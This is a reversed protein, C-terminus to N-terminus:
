DLDGETLDHFIDEFSNVEEQLGVLPLHAESALLFVASRAKESDSVNLQYIADGVKNCGVVESLGLLLDEAIPEKFEV